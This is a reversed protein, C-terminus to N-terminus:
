EIDWQRREHIRRHYEIIRQHQRQRWDSCPRGHDHHLHLRRQRHNHHCRCRRRWCLRRYHWHDQDSRCHHHRQRYRRWSCRRHPTTLLHSHHQLPLTSPGACFQNGVSIIPAPDVGAASCVPTSCDRVGYGFNMNKCLCAYDSKQCGLAVAQDLM